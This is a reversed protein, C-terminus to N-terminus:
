KAPREAGVASDRAKRSTAMSANSDAPEMRERYRWKRAFAVPFDSM